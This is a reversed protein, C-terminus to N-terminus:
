ANEELNISGGFKAYLFTKLVKMQSEMEEIDDQKKELENQKEEMLKECYNTAGEEDSLVFCEGLFIMLEEGLAEEVQQTADDLNDIDAKIQKLDEKAETYKM